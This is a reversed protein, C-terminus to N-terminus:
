DVEFTFIESSESNATEEDQSLDAEAVAALGPSETM